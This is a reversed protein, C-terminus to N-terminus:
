DVTSRLCSQRSAGRLSSSFPSPLLPPLFQRVSYPGVASLSLHAPWGDPKKETLLKTAKEQALRQADRKAEKDFKTAASIGADDVLQRKSSAGSGVIISTTPASRKLGSDAVFASTPDTKQRSLEENATTFDM